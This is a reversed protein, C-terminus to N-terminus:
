NSEMILSVGFDGVKLNDNEDILINEPKIDRHIIEAYNHVKKYINTIKKYQM